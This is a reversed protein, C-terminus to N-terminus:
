VLSSIEETVFIGGVHEAQADRRKSRTDVPTLDRLLRVALEPLPDIEVPFCEDVM